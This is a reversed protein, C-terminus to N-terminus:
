RGSDGACRPDVASRGAAFPDVEVFRGDGVVKPGRAVRGGREALPVVAHLRGIVRVGAPEILKVAETRSVPPMVEVRHQLVVTLDHLALPIHDVVECVARQRENFFVLVAREEDIERVVRRMRRHLHRLAPPSLKGVIRQLHMMAVRVAFPERVDPGRQRHALVDVPVDTTDKLPQVIEVERLVGDNGVEAVVTGIAEAPVAVHLAAFPRGVLSTNARRQQDAPGALDGGAVGDFRDGTGNIQQGREGIEGTDLAGARLWEVAAAEAGKNEVM